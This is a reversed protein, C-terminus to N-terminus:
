AKKMIYYIRQKEEKEAESEYYERPQFHIKKCHKFFSQVKLWRKQTLGKRIENGKM